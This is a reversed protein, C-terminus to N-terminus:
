PAISPPSKFPVGNLYNFLEIALPRQEGQYKSLTSRNEQTRPQKLIASIQADILNLKYILKAIRRRKIWAVIAYVLPILFIVFSLAIKWKSLKPTSIKTYEEQLKGFFPELAKGDEKHKDCFTKTSRILRHLGIRGCKEVSSPQIMSNAAVMVGVPETSLLTLEGATTLRITAFSAEALGAKTVLKSIQNALVKQKEQPMKGIIQLTKEEDLTQLEQAIVFHRDMIDSNNPLSNKAFTYRVLHQTPLLLDIKERKAVESIHKSMVVSLIHEGREMWVSYENQDNTLTSIRDRPTAGCKIVWGPIEEHEVVSHFPVRQMKGLSDSISCQGLPNFKLEKLEVNHAKMLEIDQAAMNTLLAQVERLSLVEQAKQAIGYDPDTNEILYPSLAAGTRQVRPLYTNAYYPAKFLATWDPIKNLM